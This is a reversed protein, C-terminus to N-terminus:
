KVEIMYSFDKNSNTSLNYLGSSLLIKIKNSEIYRDHFRNDNYQSASVNWDQCINQLENKESYSLPSKRNRVSGSEITFSISKNPIIDRITNKNESWQYSNNNIYSDSIKIWDADSLLAKIHQKAKEKDSNNQCMSGFRLKIKEFENMINLQMYALGNNISDILMIKLISNQVLEEDSCDDVIEILPDSEIQMTISPDNFFSERIPFPQIYKFLRRIKKSDFNGQFKYELYENILSNNLIIDAM